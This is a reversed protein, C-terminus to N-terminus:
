TDSVTEMYTQKINNNTVSLVEFNVLIFFTPKNVLIFFNTQLLMPVDSLAVMEVRNLPEKKTQKNSLVQKFDTAYYDIFYTKLM